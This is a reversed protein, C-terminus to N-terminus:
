KCLNIFEMRASHDHRIAGLLTSTIMVSGPKKVGRCSICSHSARVVVGVGRCQLHTMISDAIERTMREQVQLRKSFCDVLRALKSLGVVKQFPLYGIDVEGAFVLMHHECLSNFQIGKLVVMEDYTETFVTSLIKAPDQGYGETMETLAKAVRLPTNKLGERSDDEGIHKLLTRVADYVLGMSPYEKGSVRYHNDKPPTDGQLPNIFEIPAKHELDSM